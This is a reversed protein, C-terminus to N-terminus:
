PGRLKPIICFGCPRDCGEAIKVYNTHRAGYTQRPTQHDYLWSRRDLARVGLRPAGGGLVERLGLMDASGLFHDVEPMEDALETPYRQSLCGTMVLKQTGGGAEKVRALELITEISEEKASEIFGCTNVVLTDAEAPDDVLRDGHEEVLGLMIETDVQNKPCGLSVFYVKKPPGVREPAPRTEGVIPLRTTM